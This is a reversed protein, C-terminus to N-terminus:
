SDFDRDVELPGNIKSIQLKATESVISVKSESIENLLPLAPAAPAGITGLGEMAFVMIEVDERARANELKELLIRLGIKSNRSVSGVARVSEREVFGDKSSVGAQLIDLCSSANPGADRIACIAQVRAFSTRSNAVERLRRIVEPDNPRLQLQSSLNRCENSISIRSAATERVGLM